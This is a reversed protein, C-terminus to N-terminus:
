DVDNNDKEIYIVQPYTIDDNKHVSKLLVNFEDKLKAYEIFEDIFLNKESLESFRTKNVLSNASFLAMLIQTGGALIRTLIQMAISFASQSFDTTFVLGVTAFAMIVTTFIKRSGTLISRKNMNSKIRIFETGYETGPLVKEYNQRRIFRLYIVIKTLSRKQRISLSKDKNIKYISFKYKEVFEDYDFSVIQLNREVFRKKRENYEYDCFKDFDSLHNDYVLSVRLSYEFTKSVMRPKSLFMATFVTRFPFYFLLLLCSTLVSNTIYKTSFSIDLGANINPLLTLAITALLPITIYVIREIVNISHKQLGKM